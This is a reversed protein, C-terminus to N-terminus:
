RLRFAEFVKASIHGPMETKTMKGKDDLTFRLM